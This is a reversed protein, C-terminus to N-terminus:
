RGQFNILLQLTGQLGLLKQLVEADDHRRPHRVDVRPDHAHRPRTASRRRLDGRRLSLRFLSAFCVCDSVLPSIRETAQPM